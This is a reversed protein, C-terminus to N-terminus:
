LALCMAPIGGSGEATSGMSREGLAVEQFVKVDEETLARLILLFATVM